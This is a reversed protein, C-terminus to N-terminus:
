FGLLKRQEAWDLPLRPTLRMLTKATLQAPNRGSVIATTVDPALWPLRLLAYVYAASLREERAVAPVTLKPDQVLRAQIAHGRAIVKLLSADAETRADGNDILLRMGCGVRRLAAPATLTLSEGPAGPPEQSLRALDTEGSLLSALRTRSLKIDVGDSKIEVRCLLAKLLAKATELADVRFEEALQHGRDILRSM